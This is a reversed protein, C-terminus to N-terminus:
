NGVNTAGGEASATKIKKGEVTVKVRRDFILVQGGESVALSDATVRSGDMDIEVPEDSRLDGGSIDLVASKLRANLGDTTKVVVPTVIDLTSKSKSLLGRATDITAWDKNGLPLRASIEELEVIEDNTIEQVARAAKVEYRRNTASFGGLQPNAMILKGDRITSNAFDISVGGLFTPILSAAVIGVFLLVAIAPLAIKLRRVMRSRRQERAFREATTPGVGQRIAGQVSM